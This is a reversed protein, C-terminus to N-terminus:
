MKVKKHIEPEQCIMIGMPTQGRMCKGLFGDYTMIQRSLTISPVGTIALVLVYYKYGYIGLGRRRGCSINLLPARKM